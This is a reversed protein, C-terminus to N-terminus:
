GGIEKEFSVELISKPLKYDVFFNIINPVNILKAKSEIISKLRWVLMALTTMTIDIDIAFGKGFLVVLLKM